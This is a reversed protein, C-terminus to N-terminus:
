KKKDEVQHKEKPERPVDLGELNEEIGHIKGQLLLKLKFDKAFVYIDIIDHDQLCNIVEALEKATIERKNNEPIHINFLLQRVSKPYGKISKLLSDLAGELESIDKYEKELFKYILKNDKIVLSIGIGSGRCAYASDAFFASLLIICSLVMRKM